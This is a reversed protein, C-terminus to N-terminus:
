RFHPPNKDYFPASDPPPLDRSIRAAPDDRHVVRFAARDRSRAPCKKPRATTKKDIPPAACPPLTFLHNKTTIAGRSLGIPTTLSGKSM